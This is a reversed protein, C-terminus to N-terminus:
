VIRNKIRLRPLLEGPEAEILLQWGNEGKTGMAKITALVHDSIDRELKGKKIIFKM